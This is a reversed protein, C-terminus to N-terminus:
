QGGETLPNGKPHTIRFKLRIEKKEMPALTISWTLSGDPTQGPEVVAKQPEPAVELVEITVDKSTTVPIQDKVTVTRSVRLLSELSIAIDYTLQVKKGVLGTEARTKGLLRWGVKVGPVAGVGVSFRDNAGVMPIPATSVYDADYFLSADGPLLSFDAANTIKANLSVTEGLKPIALFEKEVPLSEVAITVKKKESSSPITQKQKIAFVMAVTRDASEATEMEAEEEAPAPAPAAAAVSADEYKVKLDATIAEELATQELTIDLRATKGGQVRLRPRTLSKFGQLEAKLDYAGPRINFFLAWGQSDASVSKRFSPSSLTVTTGPLPAGQADTIRCSVAGLQSSGTNVLWPALQGPRSRLAPEATSLSLEVSSWDEGTSQGVMAQYTLVAENKQSDIRLDYCPTWSVPSVVYSISLKETGARSVEVDVLIIKKWGEQPGFQQTREIKLATKKQELEKKDANLRRTEELIRTLQVDIFDLRKQWEASGAVQGAAGPTADAPKLTTLGAVLQNKNGLVNLRDTIEQLRDDIDSIKKELNRVTEKFSEESYSNQMRIDLIKVGATGRGAARVSEELLGSPLNQFKWTYSGPVVEGAISRTIMARDRYVTVSDMVSPGSVTTRAEEATAMVALAACLCLVSVLTKKM